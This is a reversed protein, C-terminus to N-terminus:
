VLWDWGLMGLCRVCLQAVASPEVQSSGPAGKPVWWCWCAPDPGECGSPVLLWAAYCGQSKSM